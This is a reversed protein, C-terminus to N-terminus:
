ELKYKKEKFLKLCIDVVKSDYLIGKNKSIEELTKDLGRASRYPRHSAMAEVVDAMGLIRAELLIDQGVLGNPYGSGDMREHHQLVIKAVPWPSEITKLIDYGVQSHTKVINMEVESLKSPNSLIEAPIHIKGIDHLTGAVRIAEIKTKSLNMEKAIACALRTVRRQHGATYPDRIEVVLSLANVTGELTKQLKEFSQKLAGQAQERETIDQGQAITSLLTKGDEEYINASNWLAVRIEGNKRLIPIEVTEWHEGKSTREIKQLIDSRSKRPFLVDLSQGMMEQETWGSLNEFAKNFITIRKDPDWVIIPANAYRILNNLYDRTERLESTKIAVELELFHSWRHSVLFFFAGGIILALIVFVLTYHESRKTIHIIEEVESVPACVAVSWLNGNVRVPTYAILKEIKGKQGRHWGSIYHDVGQKGTIMQRQIHEIEEYSIEPNKETRVEFSNQGMFGDEHHALFIGDENLIWAYGTKGSVIPFIIDQAIAQPDFSGVLVGQFRGTEPKNPNIPTVIIGTKNGINIYKLKSTLFVPVAIRIRLEGQENIILGSVSIHKTEKSEQFFIEKSYDRGILEERWGEFPYILQLKGNRDLLRISIRSPLGWYTHQICQLCEPTMQQISPLKALSSLASSLEKFYAEISNAASCALILQQQNFQETAMKRTERYTQSGFFIMVLVATITIAVILVQLWILPRKEKNKNVSKAIYDKKM